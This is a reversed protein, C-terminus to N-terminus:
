SFLTGQVDDVGQHNVKTRNLENIFRRKDKELQSLALTYANKKIISYQEEIESYVVDNKVSKLYASAKASEPSRKRLLIMFNALKRGAPWLDDVFETVNTRGNAYKQTKEHLELVMNRDEAPLSVTYRSNVEYRFRHHRCNYIDNAMKRLYVLKEPTLDGNYQAQLSVLFIRVFEFAQYITLEGLKMAVYVYGLLKNACPNAHRDFGTYVSYPNVGFYPYETKMLYTRIHRRTQGSVEITDWATMNKPFNWRQPDKAIGYIDLPNNEDTEETHFMEHIEDQTHLQPCMEIKKYETGRTYTSRGNYAQLYAKMISFFQVFNNDAFATQLDGQFSGLCPVGGSLHPHEAHWIYTEDLDDIISFFKYTPASNVIKVYLWYDGMHLHPRYKCVIDKFCVLVAEEQIEQSGGTDENFVAFSIQETRTTYKKSLYKAQNELSLEPTKEPLNNHWELLLDLLQNM